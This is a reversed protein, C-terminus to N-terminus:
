STNDQQLHHTDRVWCAQQWTAAAIPVCGLANRTSLSPNECYYVCWSQWGQQACIDTWQGSKRLQWSIRKEPDSFRSLSQRDFSGFHFTFGPQRSGNGFDYQQLAASPQYTRIGCGVSQLSGSFSQDLSLLTWSATLRQRQLVSLLRIHKRVSKKM